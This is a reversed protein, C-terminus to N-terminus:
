EYGRYLTNNVSKMM